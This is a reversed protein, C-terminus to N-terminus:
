QIYIRRVKATDNIRNVHHKFRVWHNDCLATESHNITAVYVAVNACVACIAKTM